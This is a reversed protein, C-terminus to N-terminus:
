YEPNSRINDPSIAISHAVEDSSIARTNHPEDRRLLHIRHRKLCLFSIAAFSARFGPDVPFKRNVRAKSSGKGCDREQAQFPM